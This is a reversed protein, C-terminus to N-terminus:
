VRAQWTPQQCVAEINNGEPDLVYAAHLARPLGGSRGPSRPGSRRDCRRRRPLRGRDAPRARPLRSAHAREARGAGLALLRLEGESSRFGGTLRRDCRGPPDFSDAHPRRAERWSLAFKVALLAMVGVGNLLRRCCTRRQQPTARHGDAVGLSCRNLSPARQERKARAPSGVARSTSRPSGARPSAATRTSRANAAERRYGARHRAPLCLPALAPAPRGPPPQPVAQSRSPRETRCGLTPSTRRRRARGALM